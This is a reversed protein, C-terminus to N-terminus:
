FFLMKIAIAGLFAGFLKTVTADALHVNVLSGLGNGVFFGVCIFAAARLDVDGQRYYVWAGLLTIPPVLIALTTGQAMKQSFHFFFVLIPILIIGGAIGVVGGILGAFAGVLIYIIPLM